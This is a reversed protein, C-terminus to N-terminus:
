EDEFTKGADMLMIRNSSKGMRRELGNYPSLQGFAQLTEKVTQLLIEKKIPKAIYRNCGALYCEAEDGDMSYATCAIIPLKPHLKKEGGRIMRAVAFGDLLPLQIDLIMLAYRRPSGNKAPIINGATIKAVADWGDEAWEIKFKKSKVFDRLHHEFLTRHAEADEVILIRDPKRRKLLIPKPKMKLRIKM